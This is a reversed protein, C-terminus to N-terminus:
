KRRRPCSSAHSAASASTSWTTSPTPRCGTSSRATTAADIAALEDHRRGSRCREEALSEDLPIRRPPTRAHGQAAREDGVPRLSGGGRAPRLAEEGERRTPPLGSDPFIDDRDSNGLLLPRPACLAMVLSYDWRYTNVPYMCDCHGSIVGDAFRGPYGESVHATLDALGAVPVICAVREDAAGVWWSTAGGGSRGSVGIRKPDVEPRTLLYDIGRMANWLEVGAPTYGRSAWWWMGLHNTGHHLGQVEGLQLTDLVLCAYGNEAYWIAHHQYTVKNGYSIGDRIVAGHGCVYLVAPCPATIKKPLFLNASVYLGPRSQFHLKEVRYTKTDITGTIRADLRTRAPLPWLGMMDLFERHLRPRIREWDAKTRIEALAEDGLKRAQLRFYDDRIRDGHATPSVVPPAAAPTLPCLGLLLILCLRRSPM